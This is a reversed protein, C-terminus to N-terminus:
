RSHSGGRFLGSVSRMVELFARLPRDPRGNTGISGPMPGASCRGSSMARTRWTQPVFRLQVRDETWRLVEAPITVSGGGLDLTLSVAMRPPRTRGRRTSRPAASRCTPTGALVTRGDPLRISGRVEAGVRARERVQRRERGVALGALVTVLCLAGWFLNLAYAQFELSGPPHTSIGVIGWLVGVLLFGALVM